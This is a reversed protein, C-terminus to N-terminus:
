SQRGPPSLPAWACYTAGEVLLRPEGGGAPIVWANVDPSGLRPQDNRARNSIFVVLRGDPSWTPNDASAPDATDTLRRRDSGDPRMTWVEGYEAEYGSWYVIRSGDLSFEPVNSDPYGPGSGDILQHPDSGDAGMTWVEVRGSDTSSFAITRGDPSWSPHVTGQIPRGSRSTAARSAKALRRPHTGDADVAWVEPAQSAPDAFTFAVVRGDPSEAPTLIEGRLTTVEEQTSGDPKMRWLQGGPRTFWIRSGDRSAGVYTGQTVPRRDSGDANVSVITSTTGPLGGGTSCYVRGNVPTSSAKGNGSASPSAATSYPQRLISPRPKRGPIATTPLQQETVLTNTTSPESSSM